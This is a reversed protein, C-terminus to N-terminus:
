QNCKETWRLKEYGLYRGLHLKFFPNAGRDLYSMWTGVILNHLCAPVQVICRRCQRSKDSVHVRSSNDKHFTFSSSIRSLFIIPPIHVASRLASLQGRMICADIIQMMSKRFVSRM